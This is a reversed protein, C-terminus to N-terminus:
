PRVEVVRQAAVYVGRGNFRADLQLYKKTVETAAYSRLDVAISEVALAREIAAEIECQELTASFIQIAKGIEDPAIELGGGSAPMVVACGQSLAELFVIGFPETPNGSIFVRSESLRGRVEERPLAGFFQIRSDHGYLQELEERQPGDGIVWAELEGHREIVRQMAPLLQDVNKSRHLRGVFTLACRAAPKTAESFIPHLPNRIVGDIRVAFISELHLASYGSVVVLQAGHILNALKYSGLIAITRLWGQNRVCPFGHAIVFARRALPVAFAATTSLFKLVSPDRLEKLRGIIQRPAIVEAEIGLARFGSALTQAYSDVGGGPAGGTLLVKQPWGKRM